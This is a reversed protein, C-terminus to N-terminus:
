QENQLCETSNNAVGELVPCWIIVTKKAVDSFLAHILLYIIM